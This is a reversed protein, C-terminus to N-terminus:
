DIETKDNEQNIKPTMMYLSNHYIQMRNMPTRTGYM